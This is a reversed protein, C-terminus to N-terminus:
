FFPKHMKVYLDTSMVNMLYRNVSVSFNVIEGNPRETRIPIEWYANVFADAPM